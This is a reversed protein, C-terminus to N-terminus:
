GMLSTRVKRMYHVKRLPVQVPAGDPIEDGVVLMDNGSKKLQIPKILLTEEAGLTLELFAGGTEMVHQCLRVKRNYDIGRAEMLEYRVGSGALQQESLILKRHVRDSLIEKQEQTIDLTEIKKLLKASIDHKKAKAAPKVYNQFRKLGSNDEEPVLVGSSTKEPPLDLSQGSVGEVVKMAEPFDEDAILYLGDSLKEKIYRKFHSNSDLLKSFRGDVKIVCGRYVSIGQCEEEWSKFSFLINQPLPSGSKEELLRIFSGASIGSRIGRMFSERTVEWRSIM